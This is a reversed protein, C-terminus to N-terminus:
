AFGGKLMLVNHYSNEVELLHKKLLAAAKKDWHLEQASFVKQYIAKVV